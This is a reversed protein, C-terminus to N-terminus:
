ANTRGFEQNFGLHREVFDGDLDTSHADQVKAYAFECPNLIATRCACDVSGIPSIPHFPPQKMDLQLVRARAWSATAVEPAVDELQPDITATFRDPIPLRLEIETKITPASYLILISHAFGNVTESRVKACPFPQRLMAM